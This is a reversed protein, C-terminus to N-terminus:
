FSDFKGKSENVTGKFIGEVRRSADVMCRSLFMKRSFAVIKLLGNPVPM